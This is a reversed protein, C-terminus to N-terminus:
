SFVPNLRQIENVSVIDRFIAQGAKVTTEYEPRTVQRIQILVSVCHAIWAALPPQLPQQRRHGLVAPTGSGAWAGSAPGSSASGGFSWTGATQTGKLPEANALGTM